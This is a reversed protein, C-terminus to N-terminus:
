LRERFFLATTGVVEAAIEAQDTYFGLAHDAGVVVHRIVESSSRAAAIAAESTAPPVVDDQDGYLVLLPGEFTALSDRPMTEELDTFWRYGLQLRTGWRTTYEAMGTSRAREKLTNYAEPGGLLDFSGQAGDAVVPTWVVMVKYSPDMGALLAVLRGGMSYGLLGVRDSDIEPQSVAYERAAQLDLLMNSLNNNTFSETSDGCGPFDMRISAIGQKAMAEAMLQYGGGEQRSGGHGHAMVVLPFREDASIVPTVYSVPVAVGRSPITIEVARFEPQISSGSPDASCAVLAVLSCLLLIALHKAAHETM